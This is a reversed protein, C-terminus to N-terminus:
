ARLYRDMIFHEVRWAARGFDTLEYVGAARTMLGCDVLRRRTLSHDICVGALRRTIEREDYARMAPLAFRIATDLSSYLAPRADGRIKARLKRAAASPTPHVGTRKGRYLAKAAARRTVDDPRRLLQKLHARVREGGLEGLAIVAAGRVRADADAALRM